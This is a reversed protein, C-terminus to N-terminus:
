FRPKNSRANSRRAAAQAPADRSGAPRPLRQKLRLRQRLRRPRRSPPPLASKAKPAQAYGLGPLSLIVAFTAAVAIAFKVSTKM